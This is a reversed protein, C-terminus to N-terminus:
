LTGLADGPEAGTAPQGGLAVAPRGLSSLSLTERRSGAPGQFPFSVTHEKSKHRFCCLLELDHGSVDNKDQLLAVIVPSGDHEVPLYESPCSHEQPCPM